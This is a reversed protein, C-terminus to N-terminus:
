ALREMYASIFEAAVQPVIANGFGGAIRKDMGDPLGNVLSIDPRGGQWNAFAWPRAVQQARPSRWLYPNGGAANAGSPNAVFFLRNRQHGAGVCTSPLVAAGFAYGIAEMDKAVGDAWEIGLAGAVQEGFVAPPRQKGILRFFEPWLHRKDDAGNQKGAVSFPQCPCSGTWAQGNWGALTLSYDWGGIGAFFHVREFGAVDTATVEEISRDDIVGPTILGADMLNSLWGCAFDDIENYFAKKSM